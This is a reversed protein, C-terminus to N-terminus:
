SGLPGFSSAEKASHAKSQDKKALRKAIQRTILRIEKIVKLRIASHRHRDINRLEFQYHYYRDTAQQLLPYVEPIPGRLRESYELPAEGPRRLFDQEGSQKAIRKSLQQYVWDVKDKYRGVSLRYFVYAVIMVVVACIVILVAMVVAANMGNFYRSMLDSQSDRDYSVVFLDWTYNIYDLSLRLQNLWPFQQLQATSFAGTEEISDSIQLTNFAGELIREPAVSHTPDVRVWGQGTLWVEAWGHADFQHVLVYNGIPNVEGGHYGVVVRAPIGVARMLYTFAGAYHMCFGKKTDMFFHDITNNEATPPSLTYHFEDENFKKLLANIFAEPQKGVAAYLDKAFRRSRANEDDVISTNLGHAEATLVADAQYKLFSRIQFRATSEILERSILTYHRTLGVGLESSRPLELAPIYNKKTPEVTVEYDIGQKLYQTELFWKPASRSSWHIERLAQADQQNSKTWTRGDFDDFVMSRWYLDKIAPTRGEFNARFALKDSRGLKAVDSPSMSESLGTVSETQDIQFSWFPPLRPFFIFLIVMLPLSQLLIVTSIQLNNIPRPIPSTRNLSVLTASIMMIVLLMYMTTLLSTSTLFFIAMIFYSLIVIVYADKERYMELAKFAYVLILFGVGADPGFLTGFHVWVFSVGFFLLPIKVWLSPFKLRGRYILLRYCICVSVMLTLWLPIHAVHPLLSAIMSALLWFLSSRGIRYQQKGSKVTM